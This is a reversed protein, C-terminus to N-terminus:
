TDRDSLKFMELREDLRITGSNQFKFVLIDRDGKTFFIGGKGDFCVLIMKNNLLKSDRPFDTAGQTHKLRKKGPFM